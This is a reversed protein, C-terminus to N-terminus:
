VSIRVKIAREAMLKANKLRDLNLTSKKSQHAANETSSQPSMSKCKTRCFNLPTEDDDLDTVTYVIYFMVHIFKSGM